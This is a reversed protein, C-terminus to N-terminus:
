SISCFSVGPRQGERYARACRAVRDRVFYRKVGFVGLIYLATDSLVLIFVGHNRWTSVVRRCTASRRVKPAYVGNAATCSAKSCCSGGLLVGPRPRRISRESSVSALRHDALRSGSVERM